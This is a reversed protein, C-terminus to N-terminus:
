AIGVCGAGRLTAAMQGRDRQETGIAPCNTSEDKGGREAFRDAGSDGTGSYAFAFQGYKELQARQEPSLVLAAKPRGMAM